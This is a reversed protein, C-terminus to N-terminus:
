TRLSGLRNIGSAIITTTPVSANLKWTSRGSSPRKVKSPPAVAYVARAIAMATPEIEPASAVPARPRMLSRRSTPAAIPKPALERAAARAGLRASSITASAGSPNALTVNAAPTLEVRCSPAVGAMRPRTIASYETTNRPDVGMPPGMTPQSASVAPGREPKIRPPTAAIPAPM